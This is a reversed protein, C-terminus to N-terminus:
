NSVKKLYKGFIFHKQLVGWIRSDSSATRNDGLVYYEDPGLTTVGPPGYTDVGKPLYSSEDLVTNNIYVQKDKIEVKENPLGIIRKIFYQSPDKPYKFVIIDGRSFNDTTKDLIIGTGNTLTPSMAQGSVIFDAGVHGGSSTVQLVFLILGFIFDM